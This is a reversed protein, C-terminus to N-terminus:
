ADSAAIHCCYVSSRPQVCFCVRSWLLPPKPMGVSCVLVHYSAGQRPNESQFNMTDGTRIRTGGSLFDQLCPSFAGAASGPGRTLLEPSWREVVAYALTRVVHAESDSSCMM